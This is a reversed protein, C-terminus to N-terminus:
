EFISYWEILPKECLSTRYGLYQLTEKLENPFISALEPVEVRCLGEKAANIMKDYVGKYKNELLSLAKQKKYHRSVRNLQEATM